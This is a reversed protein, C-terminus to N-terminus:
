PSSGEAEWVEMGTRTDQVWAGRRHPLLRATMWLDGLAGITNVLFALFAGFRLVGALYLGVFLADLLLLPALAVAVFHSRPIAEHFTVYVLPPRLGFVPRHGLARAVGAHVGEHLAVTVVLAAALWGLIPLWDPFVLDLRTAASGLVIGLVVGALTARRRPLEYAATRVYGDGALGAPTHM